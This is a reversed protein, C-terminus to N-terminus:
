EFSGGYYLDTLSETVNCVNFDKEIKKRGRESIFRYYNEDEMLKEISDAIALADRENVMLGNETRLLEPIGGTETSIVPIGYAMAEMLAVPIGEKDAKETIISPLVVADIEGRGYLDFLRDHSLRGLFEVRDDLEQNKVIEKLEDELPGDGALLCRFKAGRESLIRCAEFLYRHGKKLVFNAPCLFKFPKSPDPLKKTVEPLIVGMHIVMIKKLLTLDNIIDAIEQRGNEDIARVFSATRGKEKLLNDEPIDWRHATFSWPIETIASIIYAMTSTTSAWHAHIHSISSRQLIKSLYIGKPFVTMNKIAIKFNRAKFAIDYLLSFFSFPSTTMFKLLNWFIKLNFWPVSLTDKILPTANVHFLETSKDRPIILVDVGSAKLAFLESIIFTEQKGYPCEATIYVVKKRMKKSKDSKIRLKKPFAIKGAFYELSNGYDEVESILWTEYQWHLM